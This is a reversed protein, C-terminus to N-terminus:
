KKLIRITENIDNNKASLLYVGQEWNSLNINITKEEGPLLNKSYVHSGHLTYIELKTKEELVPIKLSLNNNTVPNPFVHIQSQNSLNLVFNEDDPYLFVNQEVNQNIVDIHSSATHFGSKSVQYFIEEEPEVEDFTVKGQANTYKENYGDLYVKAQEIPNENIGHKVNFHVSYGDREMPTSHLTGELVYWYKWKGGTADNWNKLNFSNNAEPDGLIKYVKIAEGDNNWHLPTDEECTEPVSNDSNLFYAYDDYSPDGFVKAMGDEDVAVATYENIGIGKANMQRDKIMRAMFAVHRGKRDHDDGQIRNYHSDTVLEELYPINLFDDVLTVRFHYPNNLAETSWVTGNQASYVVEGLVALGASTGGITVDKEDILYNLADHVLSNRWYNIYNWQNGGAIFLAEANVIADYVDQVNAADNDPIVISTVSNVEVGLQSYLYDNYGDSGTARIVVIDGGDARELFWRMADNNDSAGGALLIGATPETEVNTESGTRYFTQAQLSVGALLLFLFLFISRLLVLLIYNKSM